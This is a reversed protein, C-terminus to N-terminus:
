NQYSFFGKELEKRETHSKGNITVVANAFRQVLVFVIPEANNGINVQYVHRRETFDEFDKNKTKLQYSCPIGSEIFAAHRETVGAFKGCLENFGLMSQINLIVKFLSEKEPKGESVWESMVRQKTTKHPMNVAHWHKIPIIDLPEKQTLLSEAQPTLQVSNQPTM